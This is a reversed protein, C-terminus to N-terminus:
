LGKRRSIDMVMARLEIVRGSKDKVADMSLSVWVPKGNNRKMQLEMDKVAEGSAISERIGASRNDGKSEEFLLSVANRGILDNRDYGSLIKAKQNCKLINGEPDMLIYAIPANEYLDRYKKEDEILELSTKRLYKEKRWLLQAGRKGKLQGLYALSSTEVLQILVDLRQMLKKEQVFKSGKTELLAVNATNIVLIGYDPLYIYISNSSNFHKLIRADVKIADKSKEIRNGDYSFFPIHLYKEGNEQIYKDTDPCIIVNIGKKYYDACNRLVYSIIGDNDKIEGNQDIKLFFVPSLKKATVIKRGFMKLILGKIGKGDFKDMIGRDWMNTPLFNIKTQNTGYLIGTQRAEFLDLSIKLLKKLPNGRKFFDKEIQDIDIKVM